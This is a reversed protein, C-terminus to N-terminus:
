PCNYLGPAVRAVACPGVPPPEDAGQGIDVQEATFAVALSVADCATGAFDFPDFRPVDVAACIAQKFAPFYSEQCLGSDFGDSHTDVSGLVELLDSSPLRGAFTGALTWVGLDNKELPGAVIPSGFSVANSGFYVDISDKYELVLTGDAVYGSPNTGLPEKTGPKVLNTPYSWLDHGCWAPPARQRDPDITTKCGSGDLIGNTVMAGVTVATDNKTGNYGAVYILLTRAGKAINDNILPELSFGAPAFAGFLRSVANDVGGDGDCDNGKPTCSSSGGHATGPRKDCTCVQDLDFGFDNIGSPPSIQFTRFALYLPPLDQGGEDDKAPRPPPRAHKCPDASVGSDGGGSPRPSKEVREIGALIQCATMAIGLALAITAARRRNV